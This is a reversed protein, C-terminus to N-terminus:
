EQHPVDAEKFRKSSIQKFLSRLSNKSEKRRKNIRITDELSSHHDLVLGEELRKSVAVIEYSDLLSQGFDWNAVGHDKASSPKSMAELKFRTPKSKFNLRRADFENTARPPSTSSHGQWAQAVAKLIELEHEDDELEPKKKM